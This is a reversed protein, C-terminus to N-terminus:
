FEDYSCFQFPRACVSAEAWQVARGQFKGILYSMRSANDPFSHPSRSFVLGCQLLFGGCLGPEGSFPVPEPSAIDHFSPALPQMVYYFNRSTHNPCQAQGDIIKKQQALLFQISQEHSGLIAGQKTIATRTPDAPDM